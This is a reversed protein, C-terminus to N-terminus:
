VQLGTQQQDKELMKVISKFRLRYVGGYILRYGGFIVPGWAIVYFGGNEAASLTLVTVLTGIVFFLGGRIMVTDSADYFEKAVTLMQSIMHDAQYETFGENKLRDKIQENTKGKKKEDFILQWTNKKFELSDKAYERKLRIQRKIARDNDARILIDADLNRKIFEEQLVEFAEYSLFSAEKKAIAILKEDPLSAYNHKIISIDVM